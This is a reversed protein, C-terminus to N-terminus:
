FARDNLRREKLLVQVKNRELNLETRAAATWSLFPYIESAQHQSGQVM